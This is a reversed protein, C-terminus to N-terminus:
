PTPIAVVLGVRRAYDHSVGAVALRRWEVLDGPDALWGFLAFGLEV